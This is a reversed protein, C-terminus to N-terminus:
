EFRAGRLRDGPEIGLEDVQGALLELVFAVEADSGIIATSFPETRTAISEITGDAEVFLMDLSTPTNKMWMSVRRPPTFVFLMGDDPEIDTRGMYGQARRESTDAVEVTREVIGEATPLGIVEVPFTQQAFVPSAVVLLAFAASRVLGLSM